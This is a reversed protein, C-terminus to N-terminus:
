KKFCAMSDSFFSVKWGGVWSPKSVLLWVGTKATTPSTRM